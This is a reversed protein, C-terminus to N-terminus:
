ETATTPDTLEPISQSEAESIATETEAPPIEETYTEQPLTEAPLTTEPPLTTPPVTTEPVTTEPEAVRAVLMDVVTYRSSTEYDRTKLAGTQRSYKLKYTKVSYGTIGRRIVDGDLYGEANDHEFDEYVTAPKHTATIESEMRVYYDREDTGLIRVTVYDGSVQAEIRIPYNQNNRFKLDAGGYSVAADLGYDVYEVPFSHNTRSIIELDALLACNYLTTATQSIGGGLVETEENGQKEMVTKYGNGSNPRGVTENFSFSEGPELLTNNLTECSLRINTSRSRDSPLITQFEALIDRFLIEEEIQKPEIFQMPIRIIEGYQAQELLKQAAMLDFEYGYSGPVTEFTQMNITSDIPAIYFEEYVDQLDIAAPEVTPTVDTVTVLFTFMSYADLIQDYVGDVDFSIGPTGMTIVLTQATGENFTEVSLSPAAGELGYSTQTLASGASQAYGELEQRIYDTNLNLYPLLAIYHANDANGEDLRFAADVAAEVDLKADTKKQPLSLPRGALDVVMANNEYVKAVAREVAGIAQKRTMGNLNTGAVFVNGSITQVNESSGGFAFVSIVSVILVLAFACLGLMVWKQHASCFRLAKDLFGDPEPLDEEYAEEEFEPEEVPFLFDTMAAKRSRIPPEKPITEQIDAFDSDQLVDFINNRHEPSSEVSEVAVQAPDFRMTEETATQQQAYKPQYPQKKKGQEAIQRFTEEIQREEDRYPRPRSFKGKDM